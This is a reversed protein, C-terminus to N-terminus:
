ANTDHTGQLTSQQQLKQLEERRRKREAVMERYREGRFAHEQRIMKQHLNIMIKKIQRAYGKNGHVSEFCQQCRTHDWSIAMSGKKNVVHGCELTYEWHGQGIRLNHPQFFKKDIIERKPWKRSYERMVQNMQRTAPLLQIKLNAM